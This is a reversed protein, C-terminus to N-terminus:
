TDGLRIFTVQTEITSSSGKITSGSSLSGGVFRIKQNAINTVDVFTFSNSSGHRLGTGNNGDSAVGVDTYSTNDVTLKTYLICTDSGNIDFMPNAIILYHGTKPFSFTGDSAVSMQGGVQTFGPTSMRAWNDCINNATEDSTLKFQDWEILENKVFSLVGAGNTVLRQGDSGDAGPLTFGIDSGVDAPVGLEVSGSTAGNLKLGM